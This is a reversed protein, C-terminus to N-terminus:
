SQVELTETKANKPKYKTFYRMVLIFFIPVFFVALVTASLMGGIVCIGIENRGAAGAGTSIALPLVGLIFAFSTMLIPRLRIRSAEIVSESLRHGKDYLEKAFEVILIANKASLGITTLLGVQFYVDNELPKSWPILWPCLQTLYAAGVAGVIGLPVVLMVAFPISWSEYLAALCLFVFLLSISYLAVSNSSAQKEQFSVGNWAISYGPANEEVLRTMEDMAQGTSIGNAAEGQIEVASVGNFRELRPSGYTWSSKAFSSFPVLKGENNRVYWKNLDDESMRSSAESQLYVKKIRNRDMFDDVYSSGWAASLTHNISSVALGQSMARPYDVDIKLMPTDDMGNARVRTLLKASEPANTAAIVKNRVDMLAEHGNQSQDQIFMDFGAATGLEPIAPLNFAFVLGERIGMLRPFARQVIERVHQDHRKRLNWDKLKIFAMGANQGSGAFSFGAIGMVSEVNEPEENLFYDTLQNLVERTREMTAGAPLQVMAMLVGQDEEPVFSTPIRIFMALTAVCIVIYLIIYPILSKIVYNVIKVYLDTFFKFTRNFLSFFKDLAIKRLKEALTDKIRALVGLFGRYTPETNDDKLITACLAPTLTLATFVSLAMASVITISFQRYIIGTSGGFFAMPIFVASLVLAIGVLAGTIQDMSKQTAKYPSLGESHMIREVNEVVVIADDVLLGIALVVGFMTLTNISFNFVSMIAFTGLLVVPVTITPIITARINQLFVYMVLFVLIIAEFLTHVVENISIKIFPTTDFPYVVEYGAPMYQKLREVEQIVRASTGIANAGSALRIGIGTTPQRNYEGSFQYNSTGLQVDAVDQLKVFSGDSNMRIIINRFEEPSTLRSQGRITYNYVQGPVAPASGLSGYTVQANQQVIASEVEAITLNYKNLKDPSVWVRMAYEAGFVTIDGVGELRSLPEKMVSHAYDALDYVQISPDKSILGVVMLFADTSKKVDIGNQQVVTPLQSTCQNLKNQVQVQAIDPNTGPEFTIKIESSGYGDSSSSMYMYGDLGIMNQEIIKTITNEVTEANAGPYSSRITVTPPAITPYQSVPLSNISLIGALMIVIALVWAFIPRDIFFRAM